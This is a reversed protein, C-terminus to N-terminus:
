AELAKSSVYHPGSVLISFCVLLSVGGLGSPALSLKKLVALVFSWNVHNYAKEIDFKCIIGRSNGKFRSDVVDNAIM